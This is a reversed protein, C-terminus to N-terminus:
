CTPAFFSTCMRRTAATEIIKPIDILAARETADSSLEIRDNFYLADLASTIYTIKPSSATNTTNTYAFLEQYDFYSDAFAIDPIYSQKEGNEDTYSMVFNNGYVSAGLRTLAFSLTLEDDGKQKNIIINKMKSSEIMPYAIPIGAYYSEGELLELNFDDNEGGSDNDAIARVIFYAGFLLAIVLFLSVAAILKKDNKTIKKKAIM